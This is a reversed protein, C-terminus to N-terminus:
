REKSDVNYLEKHRTVQSGRHWNQKPLGKAELVGPILNTQQRHGTVVDTKEARPPGSLQRLDKRILKQLIYHSGWPIWGGYEDEMPSERATTECSFLFAFCLHFRYQPMQRDLWIFIVWYWEDWQPSLVTLTVSHPLLPAGKDTSDVHGIRRLATCTRCGKHSQGSGVHQEKRKTWKGMCM